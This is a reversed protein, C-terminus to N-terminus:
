ARGRAEGDIRAFGRLEREPVAGFAPGIVGFRMDRFGVEAEAAFQLIRGAVIGPNEGVRAALDAITWQLVTAAVAAQKQAMGTGTRRARLQHFGAAETSGDLINPPAPELVERAVIDAGLQQIAPGMSARLNAVLPRARRASDPSHVPALAPLSLLFLFATIPHIVPAIIRALLHETASPMNAFLPTMGPLASWARKLPLPTARTPFSHIFSHSTIYIYRQTTPSTILHKTTAEMSAGFPAM